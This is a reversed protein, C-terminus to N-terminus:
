LEYLRLGNERYFDGKAVVITDTMIEESSVSLTVRNAKVSVVRVILSPENNVIVREDSLIKRM